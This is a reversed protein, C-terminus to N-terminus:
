RLKVRDDDIMVQAAVALVGALLLGSGSNVRSSQTLFIQLSVFKYILNNIHLGQKHTLLNNKLM